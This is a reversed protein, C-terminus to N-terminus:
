DFETYLFKVFRNERFAFGIPFSTNISFIIFNITGILNQEPIFGYFRSDNSNNRNDGLVFYYNQKFTYENTSKRNLFFSDEQIDLIEGEKNALDKIWLFNNTNLTISMDKQPIVITGYDLTTWNTNHPFKVPHARRIRIIGKPQKVYKHNIFLHGQKLSITDGPLGIIRKTIFIEPNEPSSFVSIDFRLPNRGTKIRHYGWDNKRDINRLGTMWTFINIIPIESLNHPLVVGYKWKNVWVYDGKYLTNEMSETSIYCPQGIFTKILIAVVTACIFTIIYSSIKIM